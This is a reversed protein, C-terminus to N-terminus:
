LKLELGYETALGRLFAVHNRYEQEPDNFVAKEFVVLGEPLTKILDVGKQAVEKDKNIRFSVTM